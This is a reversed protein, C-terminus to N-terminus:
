QGSFYYKVYSAAANLESLFLTRHYNLASSLNDIIISSCSLSPIAHALPHEQAVLRCSPFRRQHRLLPSRQGIRSINERCGDERSARSTKAASVFSVRADAGFEHICVAFVSLIICVFSHPCIFASLHIRVASHACGFACLRIRVASHTCSWAYLQIRVLLHLCVFTLGPFLSLNFTLEGLM